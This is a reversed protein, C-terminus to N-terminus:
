IAPLTPSPGFCVLMEAEIHRRGGSGSGRSMAASVSCTAVDRHHLPQFGESNCFQQRSRGQALGRPPRRNMRARFEDLLRSRNGKSSLFIQSRRRTLLKRFLILYRGDEHNTPEPRASKGVRQLM